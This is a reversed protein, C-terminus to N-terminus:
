EKVIKYNEGSSGVLTYIGSSLGKFPIYLTDYGGIVYRGILQGQMNYLVITQKEVGTNIVKLETDNNLPNPYVSLTKSIYIPQNISVTDDEGRKVKCVNTIIPENYDFFIAASNIISDGVRLETNINAELELYGRSGEESVSKPKLYINDFTWTIINDKHTIKCPHSTGVMKFSYVPINMNLTDVVRVRWADANGENQFEIKYRIKKLDRKIIGNPYCNKINPDYSYVMKQRITDVNDSKKTDGGIPFLEVSHMVVQNLNFQTNPYKITLRIERNGPSNNFDYELVNGIRNTFNPVSSVVLVKPDLKVKLSMMKYISNCKPNNLDLRIVQDENLRAESHATAYVSYNGVNEQVFTVPINITDSSKDNKYIDSSVGGDFDTNYCKSNYGVDSVTLNVPESDYVLYLNVQNSDLILTRNSNGDFMTTRIAREGVDFQGNRNEDRFARIYLTDLNPSILNNFNVEAMPGYNEGEVLLNRRNYIFMRKGDSIHKFGTSDRLHSRFNFLLQNQNNLTYFPVINNNPSKSSLYVSNNMGIFDPKFLGTFSSDFLQGNVVQVVKGLSETLYDFKGDNAFSTIRSSSPYRYHISWSGSYYSYITNDTILMLSDNLEYIKSHDNYNPPTINVATNGDYEVIAPNVLNFMTDIPGFYYLKNSIKVSQLPYAGIKSSIYTLTGIQTHNNPTIRFISSRLVGFKAFGTSILSQNLWHLSSLNTTNLQREKISSYLSWNESITNYRYVLSTDTGSAHICYVNQTTDMAAAYILQSNIGNLKKLSQSNLFVPISFVFVLAIKLYKIM